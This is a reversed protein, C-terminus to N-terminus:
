LSFGFVLQFTEANPNVIAQGFVPLSFKETLEIEKSVSLAINSVQFDDSGSTTVWGNGGGIALSVNDSFAYGAELYYTGDQTNTSNNMIYNAAISFAGPAYGLNLEFSHTSLAEDTEFFSNYTDNELDMPYYYDTLGISLADSLSYSLYLDAETLAGLATGYSGWAGIAFDGAAYEITPQVAGRGGDQLAGRFVYNSVVDAGVSFQAKAASAALVIAFFLIVRKM